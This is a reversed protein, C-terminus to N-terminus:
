FNANGSIRCKQTEPTLDQDDLQPNLWIALAHRNLASLPCPAQEAEILAIIRM